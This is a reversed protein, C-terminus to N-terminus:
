EQLLKYTGAQWSEVVIKAAEDTAAYMVCVSKDDEMLTVEIEGNPQKQVIANKM